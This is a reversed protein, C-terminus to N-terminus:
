VACAKLAPGTDAAIGLAGVRMAVHLVFGNYLGLQLLKVSHGIYVGFFGSAVVHGPNLSLIGLGFKQHTLKQVFVTEAVAQVNLIHM